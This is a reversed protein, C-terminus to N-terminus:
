KVAASEKAPEGPPSDQPYVLVRDHSLLILDPRGDGTVDAIVGERPETGTKEETVLSKSEFVKFQLAHRFGAGPQFNVIDISQSQTDIVALDVLGDSNLDGAVLDNFHVKEAKTEYTAITKLQPDTQGAYLVGFRGSGFLLLDDRKDGNLDAVFTARYLFAGIEVERWPRFLKQERRLIRLKRVGQDVLVIESGPEGDLDLTATGVIRAEAEPANYQDIVRWQNKDSVAVNRAFNGQAVLIVPQDLRGLFLGGASVTGLGFGGDSASLEAPVGQANTLLFTPARDAGAFILFDTKGDRNADLSVLRQPESKLNLSVSEQDGFKYPRWGEPGNRALAQLTYKTSSGGRDKGVFVIEPRADGDLDTLDIAAPEKDTAIGQPFSLRGDQMRSLGITKERTSLIVVESQKDGDVDGVRVQEAWALSPFATGLDLGVQAQQRFIIVQATAPDTVVVDVLGDGDVDGLALDRPAKSSDLQGLGYQILQGAPEGPRTQPRELRHAKVRGTQAEIALIEIGPQGDLNALTVGRPRPLECRLEPGLRADPRQLRVCCPREADSNTLYCLDNRGDGDLDAVQALGLGESTNMLRVPADLEGGIKQYVIYTDHKGLVVLDDKGDHNLDGATLIWQVPNVDPLRIRRRNTWDGDAQQYAITLQDPAGFWALDKRGDGNLDGVTLSAVERDVPIKKHEFRKDDEIANVRRPATPLTREATRPDRQMLLDLRSNSNDVLVLDIRGDGNLDAAQLNASRQQLKYVELRGFGYYRGLELPAEDAARSAAPLAGCAFSMAAALIVAARRLRRGFKAM